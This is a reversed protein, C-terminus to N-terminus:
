MRQLARRIVDRSSGVPVIARSEVVLKQHHFGFRRVAQQTPCCHAEGHNYIDNAVWLKGDVFAAGMRDGSQGDPEIAALRITQPGNGGSGITFVDIGLAGGNGGGFDYVLAIWQGDVEGQLIPNACTRTEPAFVGCPVESNMQFPDPNQAGICSAAISVLLLRKYM